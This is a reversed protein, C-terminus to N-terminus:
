NEDINSVMAYVRAVKDTDLKPPLPWGPSVFRNVALDMTVYRDLAARPVDNLPEHPANFSLYAFFPREQNNKLFDITASALVDSVYGATRVAHGNRLLIPDTYGDGGPLDSPQGLGGGKMVLSEGFGQDMARMPYNDGLHWKGFIGTRYGAEAFLEPMTVEDAHMMSRGLYTDVVGTRYNYRGTM